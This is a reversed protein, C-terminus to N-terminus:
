LGGRAKIVWKKTEPDEINALYAQVEESTVPLDLSKGLACITELTGQPDQLAQRFLTQTLEPNKKIHAYLEAANSSM